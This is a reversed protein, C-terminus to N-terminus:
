FYIFYDPFQVKSHSVVQQKGSNEISFTCHCLQCRASHKDAVAACLWIFQNCWTENFINKGRHSRGAM